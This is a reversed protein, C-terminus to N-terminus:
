EAGLNRFTSDTIFGTERLGHDRQYRMLARRTKPGLVGDIAGHYYGENALRVQAATVPSGNGADEGEYVTPDYGYPYAGYGYAGYPYYWFPDYFGLDFILWSGNAFHCRHGHWWHDHNRSWNPHASAAQRAIIHSSSNNLRANNFRASNSRANNFRAGAMGPSRPAASHTPASMRSSMGAGGVHQDRAQAPLSLALGVLFVLSYILSKM